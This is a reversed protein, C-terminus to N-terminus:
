RQDGGEAEALAAALAELDRRVLQALLVACAWTDACVGDPRHDDGIADIDAASM